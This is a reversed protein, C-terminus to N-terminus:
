RSGSILERVSERESGWAQGIEALHEAFWELSGGVMDGAAWSAASQDITQM